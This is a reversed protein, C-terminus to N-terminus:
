RPFPDTSVPGNRLRIFDGSGNFNAVVAPNGVAVGNEPIDSLVVASAGVVAGDGIHVGGLVKAAAAIYVREGIVPAGRQGEPGAAGVFSMQTISCNRGMVVGPGVFTSGFHAIYLGAGICAGPDLTIGTIAAIRAEWLRYVSWLIRGVVPLRHTKLYRAFRYAVLAWLGQSIIFMRVRGPLSLRDFYVEYRDFDARIASWFPEPCQDAPTRDAKARM